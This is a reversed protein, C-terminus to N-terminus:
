AYSILNPCRKIRALRAKEEAENKNFCFSKDFKRYVMM